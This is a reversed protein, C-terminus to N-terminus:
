ASGGTNVAPTHSDTSSIVKLTASFWYIKGFAVQYFKVSSKLIEPLRFYHNMVVQTSVSNDTDISIIQLLQPQAGLCFILCVCVWGFRM